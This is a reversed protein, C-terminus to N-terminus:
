FTIKGRLNQLLEPHEDKKQKEYYLEKVERAKAKVM